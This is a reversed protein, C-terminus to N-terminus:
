HVNTSASIVSRGTQPRELLLLSTSRPLATKTAKQHRGSRVLLPVLAPSTVTQAAAVRRVRRTGVSQIITASVKESAIIM